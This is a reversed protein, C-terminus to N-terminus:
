WGDDNVVRNQNPRGSLQQANKGLSTLLWQRAQQMAEFSRYSMTKDAYKVVLTPSALAREIGELWLLREEESTAYFAM